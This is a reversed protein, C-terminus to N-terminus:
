FETLLYGGGKTYEGSPPREFTTVIELVSALPGNLTDAYTHIGAHALM